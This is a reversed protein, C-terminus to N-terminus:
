FNANENRLRREPKRSTFHFNDRGIKYLSFLLIALLTPDFMGSSNIDQTVSCGFIKELGTKNEKNNFTLETNNNSTDPDQEAASVAAGFEASSAGTYMGEMRVSVSAGVEMAGIDCILDSGAIRCSGKSINLSRQLWEDPADIVLEVSSSDQPGLNTVAFAILRDIGTLTDVLDVRGHIRLDAQPIGSITVNAQNNDANPDFQDSSATVEFSIQGAVNIRYEITITKSEGQALTGIDCIMNAGTESCNDPVASVYHIAESLTQKIKVAEASSPGANSLQYTISALNGVEVATPGSNVAFAVDSSGTANVVSQLQNNAPNPDDLMESEITAVFTLTEVITSQVVIGIDVSSNIDM